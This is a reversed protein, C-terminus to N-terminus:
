AAGGNRRRLALAILGLGGLLMGWTAPEPVASTMSVGDLLSFPPQGSPTGAALFSLVESPGTATFTMTEHMWGSFGESKNSYISTSKTESGLSVGWHETNPGTFNKQQAAAWDFSVQYDQGVKLGSITQQIAGIKYAGDAAVFNGGTPSNTLGNNSGNQPGWLALKGDQGMSGTSDATGAAFLFNYGSSTWGTAVTSYDFQGTGNTTQEFDGNVVFNSNVAQASTAGMGAVTVITLGLVIAKIRM